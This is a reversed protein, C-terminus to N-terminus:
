KRIRGASCLDIRRGGMQPEGDQHTGAGDLKGLYFWPPGLGFAGVEQGDRSDTKMEGNESSGSPVGDDRAWIGSVAQYSNWSLEKWGNETWVFRVHGGQHYSM